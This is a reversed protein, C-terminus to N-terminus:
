RAMSEREIQVPVNLYREDLDRLDDATFAGTVTELRVRSILYDYTAESLDRRISFVRARSDLVEVLDRIGAELGRDTAELQAEATELAQRSTDVKRYATRQENALRRTEIIAQRQREATRAQAARQRSRAEDVGANTRGGRYLPMELALYVRRDEGQVLQDTADTESYRAQFSLTPFFESKRQAVTRNAVIGEAQAVRVTPSSQGATQQLSEVEDPTPPRALAVARPEAARLHSIREGTLREMDLLALELENDARAIESSAEDRRVQADLVDVRSALGRDLREQMQDVQLRYARTEAQALSVADRARLIRLYIEAVQGALEERTAQLETNALERQGRAENIATSIGRNYLPQILSIGYRYSNEDTTEIESIRQGTAPDVRPTATEYESATYNADATLEPLRQGEAQRLRAQAADVLARREKITPMSTVALDYATALGTGRDEEAFAWGSTLLGIALSVICVTSVGPAARPQFRKIKLM